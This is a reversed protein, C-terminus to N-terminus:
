ELREHHCTYVAKFRLATALYLHEMSTATNDLPPIRRDKPSRRAAALSRAPRDARRCPPHVPLRTSTALAERAREEVPEGELSVDHLKGAVTVLEPRAELALLLVATWASGCGPVGRKVVCPDVEKRYGLGM